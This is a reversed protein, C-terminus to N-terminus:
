ASSRIRLAPEAGGEDRGAGKLLETITSLQEVSTTHGLRPVPLFRVNYGQHGLTKAAAASESDPIVPDDVGHSLTVRPSTPTAPRVASALRGSLSIAQRFPYSGAALALTMIAGQSFGLIALGDPAIGEATAIASIRAALAPVASAVRAPRNETTVGGIPFWQRGVGGPVCDPGGLLICATDPDGGFLFEAVPALGEPTAGVGHMLVALRKPSLSGGRLSSSDDPLPEFIM